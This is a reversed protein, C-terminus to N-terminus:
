KVLSREGSCAAEFKELDGLLSKTRSELDVVQARFRDVVPNFKTVTTNFADIQTSRLAFRTRFAEIDRNRREVRENFAEVKKKFRTVQAKSSAGNAREREIEARSAELAAGESELREAVQALEREETDLRSRTESLRESELRLADSQDSLTNRSSEIEQVRRPVDWYAGMCRSLDTYKLETKKPMAPLNWANAPLVNPTTTPVSQGAHCPAQGASVVFLPFWLLFRFDM